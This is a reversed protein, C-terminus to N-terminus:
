AWLRALGLAEDRRHGFDYGKMEKGRISFVVGSNKAFLVYFTVAPTMSTLCATGHEAGSQRARITYGSHRVGGCRPYLTSCM